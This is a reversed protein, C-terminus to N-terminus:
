IKLYLIHQLFVVVGIGFLAIQKIGLAPNIRYIMIIGISQLMCIILFLYNDGKSVKSIIFNAIYVIAM